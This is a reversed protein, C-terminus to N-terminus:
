LRGTNRCTFSNFSAAEVMPITVLRCLCVFIGHDMITWDDKTHGVTLFCGGLVGLFTGVRLIRATVVGVADVVAAAAHFCCFFVMSWAMRCVCIVFLLYM